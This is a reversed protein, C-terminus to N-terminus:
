FCFYEVLITKLAPNKNEHKDKNQELYSIIIM